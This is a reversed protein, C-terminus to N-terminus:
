DHYLYRKEVVTFLFARFADEIKKRKAIHIAKALNVDHTKFIENTMAGLESKSYLSRLLKNAFLEVLLRELSIRHDKGVLTKVCPRIVIMREDFYKQFEAKNPNSLNPHYGKKKLDNAALVMFDRDMEIFTTVSGLLHNLWPNFVNTDFLVYDGYGEIIPEIDKDSLSYAFRRKRETAYTIRDLQFLSGKKKLQSVIRYGYSRSVDGYHKRVLAFLDERSITKRQQLELLLQQDKNMGFGDYPFRSKAEISLSRFKYINASQGSSSLADTRPSPDITPVRHRKQPVPKNELATKQPQPRKPNIDKREIYM